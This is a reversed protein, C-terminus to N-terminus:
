ELRTAASDGPRIQKGPAMFLVRAGSSDAMLKSVVVKAIFEDGRYIRFQYGREVGQDRGVTLLVTPPDTSDDVGAVLGNIPKVPPSGVVIQRVPLGQREAEEILLQLDLAKQKTDAYQKRLEGLDKELATKQGMLRAVQAQALEMDHVAKDKEDRLRANTQRENRIEDDKAKLNENAVRLGSTLEDNKNNLRQIEAIQEQREDDVAKVLDKLQNIRSELEGLKRELDSKTGLLSKIQAEKGEVVQKHHARAREWAERWNNAHYSLTAEAGLYVLSLVTVIVILIRGLLSM